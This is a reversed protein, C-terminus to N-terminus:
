DIYKFKESVIRSLTYGTYVVSFCAIERVFVFQPYSSLLERLYYFNEM